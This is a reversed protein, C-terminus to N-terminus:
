SDIFSKIRMIIKGISENMLQKLSEPDFKLSDYIIYGLVSTAVAVLLLFPLPINTKNEYVVPLNSQINEEKSKFSQGRTQEALEKVDFDNEECYWTHNCRTCKVHRGSGIQGAEVLYKSDCSPCIVIM